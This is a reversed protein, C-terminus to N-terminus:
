RDRTLHETDIARIAHRYAAVARRIGAAARHQPQAGDRMWTAFLHKVHDELAADLASQIIVRVAADSGRPPVEESWAALPLLAVLL